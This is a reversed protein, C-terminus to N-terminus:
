ATSTRRGTRRAEVYLISAVLFVLNALVFIIIDRM